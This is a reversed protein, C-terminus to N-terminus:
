FSTRQEEALKELGIVEIEEDFGVNDEDIRFEGQVLSRHIM